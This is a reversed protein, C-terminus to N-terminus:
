RHDPRQSTVVTHNASFLMAVSFLCFCLIMCSGVLDHYIDGKENKAPTSQIPHFPGEFRPFDSHTEQYRRNQKWGFFSDTARTLATEVM